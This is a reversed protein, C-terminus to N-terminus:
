CSPAEHTRIACSEPVRGCRQGQEQDLRQAQTQLRAALSLAIAAAGRGSSLLGAPSELRGVLRERVSGPLTALLDDRRSEPGLLGIYGPLQPWGALTALVERDHGFHHAMVLVADYRDGGTPTVPLLREVQAACAAWDPRPELLDVRWGLQDLLPLLIESEPGAGCILVRPLPALQLAWVVGDTAVAATAADVPLSWEAQLAGTQVCLRGQTAYSLRLAEGHERYSALIPHLGPLAALPVVAVRQRGRCGAGSGSFVDSLDRNDLDLLHVRGDARAANAAALVEGELCGPSVWGRRRGAATFHVLTGAKAYAHGAVELVLALAGPNPQGIDELCADLAAKNPAGPAHRAPLVSEPNM